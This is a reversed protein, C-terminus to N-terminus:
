RTEIYTLRHRPRTDVVYHINQEQGGQRINGSNLHYVHDFEMGKARHGSLFRIEGDTSTFIKNAYAISQALTRGARAFVRLCAATDAASKSDLSEREAEWDAIASLTQAQTLDDPGLKTLLKTIRAGIDIGAVDVRRGHSLCDMALALLPANYRCIVAAGPAITFDDLTEVIGGPGYGRIDPVHWHVNSTIAEPCRFSLSLPLVSMNFEEIAKPMAHSDAGRFEYIAQAEDGVGIQRSSKTLKAVLARNVPSLDQYEDIMVIPFRPFIGGFLAPMYCQDNFDITGDLAQSISITLVKDAIAKVEDVPTEDLYRELSRWDILRRAVRAHGDPIYGLSRAMDVANRVNDWISWLHSRDARDAEDVLNRYIDLIKTKSLALRKHSYDAWISHGISNMTKITTTSRFGQGAKQDKKAEDAISKNFCIVLATGSLATDILKLTSSKGCGARARVMLNTRSAAVFDLIASQEHTPKM